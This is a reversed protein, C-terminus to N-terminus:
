EVPGRKLSYLLRTSPKDVTRKAKVPSMSHTDKFPKQSIPRFYNMKITNM